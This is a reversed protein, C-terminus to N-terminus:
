GGEGYIGARYGGLPDESGDAKDDRVLLASGFQERLDELITPSFTIIDEVGLEVQVLSGRIDFPDTEGVPSLADAIGNTIWDRWVEGATGSDLGSGSDFAIFDQPGLAVKPIGGGIGFADAGDVGFSMADTVNKQIHSQWTAAASPDSHETFSETASFRMFHQPGLAVGMGGVVTQILFPDNSSTWIMNALARSTIWSQWGGAIEPVSMFDEARLAVIPLQGRLKFPDDTDANIGTEPLQNSVNSAIWPVWNKEGEPFGIVHEASLVFRDALSRSNFLDETRSKLGQYVEEGLQSRYHLEYGYGTSRWPIVRGASLIFKDGLNRSDFVSEVRSKLGQYVETGLAQKFFAEYLTGDPATMMKAPLLAYLSDTARVDFQGGIIANLGFYVEDGISGTYHSSFEFGDPTVVMLEPKLTYGAFAAFGSETATLLGNTIESGIAGTYFSEWASPFAVMQSNKITYITAAHTDGPGGTETSSLNAFEASVAPMIGTHIWPGVANSYYTGMDESSPMAVLSGASLTYLVPSGLDETAGEQGPATPNFITRTAEKLGSLNLSSQTLGTKWYTLFEESSPMAVVQSATLGFPAFFGAEGFNSVDLLGSGSSFRHPTIDVRDQLSIPLNPLDDLNLIDEWEAVRHATTEVNDTLDVSMSEVPPVSTDVPSTTAGTTGGTTAGSSQLNRIASEEEAKLLAIVDGLADIIAVAEFPSATSLADQAERRFMMERADFNMRIARRAPDEMTDLFDRHFERADFLLEKLTRRQDDNLYVLETGWTLNEFDIEEVIRAFTEEILAQNQAATIDPTIRAEHRFQAMAGSFFGREIHAREEPDMMADAAISAQELATQKQLETTVAGIEREITVILETIRETDLDPSFEAITEILKNFVQPGGYQGFLASAMSEFATGSMSLYENMLAYIQRDGASVRTTDNMRAGAVTRIAEPDFGEFLEKLAEGGTAFAQLEVNTYTIIEQMFKEIQETAEEQADRQRHLADTYAEVAPAGATLIQDLLLFGQVGATFLNGQALSTGIDLIQGGFQAIQPNFAELALMGANIKDANEELVGTAKERITAIQEEASLMGGPASVETPTLTRAQMGHMRARGPGEQLIGGTKLITEIQSRSIQPGAGFHGLGRVAQVPGNRLRQDELFENYGQATRTRSDSPGMQGFGGLSERAAIGGEIARAIDLPGGPASLTQHWNAIGIREAVSGQSPDGPVQPGTMVAPAIEDFGKQRQHAGVAKALPTLDGRAIQFLEAFGFSFDARDLTSIVDDLGEALSALGSIIGGFALTNGITDQLNRWAAELRGVADAAENVVGGMAAAKIALQEKVLIAFAERKELDSLSKVTRNLATAYNKYATEVRAVVGLEDLLEQEQKNIASIVREIDVSAIRGLGTSVTRIDKILSGMNGSLNKIGSSLAINATVMMQFQSLTGAAADDIEKLLQAPNAGSKQAMSMFGKRAANTASALQNMEFVAMGIRRVTEVGIAVGFLSGLTRLATGAQKAAKDVRDLDRAAQKTGRDLDKGDWRATVKIDATTAVM